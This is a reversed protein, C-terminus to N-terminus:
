NKALRNPLHSIAHYHQKGQKEGKILPIHKNVMLKGTRHTAAGRRKCM